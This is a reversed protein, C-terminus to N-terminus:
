AGRRLAPAADRDGKAARGDEEADDDEGDDVGGAPGLDLL